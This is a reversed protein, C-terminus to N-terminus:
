LSRRALAYQKAHLGLYLLLAGASGWASLDHWGLTSAYHLPLILFELCHHIASPALLSQDTM